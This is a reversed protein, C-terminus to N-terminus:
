MFINGVAAEIMEESGRGFILALMLPLTFYTIIITIIIM